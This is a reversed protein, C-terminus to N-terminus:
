LYQFHLNLLISTFTVKVICKWSSVEQWPSSLKEKILDEIELIKLKKAVHIMFFISIPAFGVRM